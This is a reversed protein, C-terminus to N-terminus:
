DDRTHRQSGSWRRIRGTRSKVWDKSRGSRYRSGGRKSVLGELDMGCAAQLLEPGIEGQEFSNVFIGDPRRALLRDLNTKRM